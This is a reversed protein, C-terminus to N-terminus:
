ETKEIGGKRNAIIVAWRNKEQVDYHLNVLSITVGWIEARSGLSIRKGIVYGGDVDAVISDVWISSIIILRDDFQYREGIKVTYEKGAIIPIDARDPKINNRDALCGYQFLALAAILLINKLM